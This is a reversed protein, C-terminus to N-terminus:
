NTIAENVLFTYDRLLDRARDGKTAGDVRVGNEPVSEQMTELTELEKRLGAVFLKFESRTLNRYRKTAAQQGRNPEDM